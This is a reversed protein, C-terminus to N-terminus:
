EIAHHPLLWGHHSRTWSTQMASSRSTPLTACRSSHSVVDSPRSAPRAECGLGTAELTTVAQPFLSSDTVSTTTSLSPLPCTPSSAFAAMACVRGGGCFGLDELCEKGTKLPPRLGPLLQGAYGEPPGRAAALCAYCLMCRVSREPGHQWERASSRCSDACIPKAMGTMPTPQPTEM